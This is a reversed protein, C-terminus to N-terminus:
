IALFSSIRSERAVLQCDLEALNGSLNNKFVWVLCHCKEDGQFYNKAESNAVGRSSVNAVICELKLNLSKVM